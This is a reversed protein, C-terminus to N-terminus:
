CRLSVCLAPGRVLKSQSYLTAANMSKRVPGDAFGDFDLQRLYAARSSVTVVRAHGSSSPASDSAALLAPTLLDTLLWHGPPSTKVM